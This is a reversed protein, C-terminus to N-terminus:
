NYGEFHQPGVVSWICISIIMNTKRKAQFTNRSLLPQLSYSQLLELDNTHAAGCLACDPWESKM